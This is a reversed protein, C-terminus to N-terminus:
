DGELIGRARQLWEEWRLQMQNDGQFRQVQMESILQELGLVKDAERFRQQQAQTLEERSKRVQRLAQQHMNELFEIRQQQSAVLQRLSTVDEYDAAAAIASCSGEAFGDGFGVSDEAGDAATCVSAISQAGPGLDSNVSVADTTCHNAAVHVEDNQTQAVHRRSSNKRASGDGENSRRTGASTPRSPREPLPPKVRLPSSCFSSDAGGGRGRSITSPAFFSADMSNDRQPSPLRGPSPKRGKAMLVASRIEEEDQEIKRIRAEELRRRREDKEQYLRIHVPAERRDSSQRGALSSSRRPPQQDAASREKSRSDPTRARPERQFPMQQSARLQNSSQQSRRLSFSDTGQQHQHDASGNVLAPASPTRQLGRPKRMSDASHGFPNTHGFGNRRGNDITPSNTVSSTIPEVPFQQQQLQFQQRHQQQQQQQQQQQHRQQQQQQQQHHHNQPQEQQQQQQQQPKQHQLQQAEIQMQIEQQRQKLQQQQEQLQQQIEQQEEELRKLELEQSRQLSNPISASQQRAGQLPAAPPNRAQSFGSSSSSSSAGNSFHAGQLSTQPMTTAIMSKQSSSPMGLHSTGKSPSSAASNVGSSLVSSAGVSLDFPADRPRVEIIALGRPSEATALFVELEADSALEVLQGACLEGLLTLPVRDLNSRVGELEEQSFGGIEGLVACALGALSPPASALRFPEPSSYGPLNLRVLVPPM